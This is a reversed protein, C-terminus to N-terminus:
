QEETRYSPRARNPPVRVANGVDALSIMFGVEGLNQGSYRLLDFLSPCHTRIDFRLSCSAMDQFRAPSRAM